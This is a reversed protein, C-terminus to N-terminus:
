DQWPTSATEKPFFSVCKKTYLGKGFVVFWYKRTNKDHDVDDKYNTYNHIVPMLCVM